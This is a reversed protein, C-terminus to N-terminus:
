CALIHVFTYDSSVYEHTRRGSANRGRQHVMDLPM